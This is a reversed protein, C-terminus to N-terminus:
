DHGCDKRATWDPQTAPEGALCHAMVFDRLQAGAARPTSAAGELFDLAAARHAADPALRLACEAFALRDRLTLSEATAKFAVAVAAFGFATAPDRSQATDQERAM